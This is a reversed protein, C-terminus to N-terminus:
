TGFKKYYTKEIKLLAGNEFTREEILNGESDYNFLVNESTENTELIGDVIKEIKKPYVIEIRQNQENYKYISIIKLKEEVVQYMTILNGNGDYEYESTAALQGQINYSEIKEYKGEKNYYYQQSLYFSDDVKDYLNINQGKDNYERKQFNLVTGDPSLQKYITRNGKIDYEYVLITSISDLEDFGIQRSILRAENYEIIYKFHVEGKENYRVDKFHNGSVDYFDHNTLLSDNTELNYEYTLIESIKNRKRLERKLDNENQALLLTTSLIIITAIAYKM